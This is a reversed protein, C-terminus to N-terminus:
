AERVTFNFGVINMGGDASNYYGFGVTADGNAVVLQRATRRYEVVGTFTAGNPWTITVTKGIFDSNQVM